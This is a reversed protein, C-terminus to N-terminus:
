TTVGVDHPPSLDRLAFYAFTHDLCMARLVSSLAPSMLASLFHFRELKALRCNFDVVGVQPLVPQHCVQIANSSSQRLGPLPIGKGAGNPNERQEGTGSGGPFCRM